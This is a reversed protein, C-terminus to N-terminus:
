LIGELMKRFEMFASYFSKNEIYVQFNQISMRYDNIVNKFEKNEILSCLFSLSCQFTDLSAM